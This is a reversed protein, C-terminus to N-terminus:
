VLEKLEALINLSELPSLQDIEVEELRQRLAELEAELMAVREALPGLSPAPPPPPPASVRWVLPALLVALALAFLALRM